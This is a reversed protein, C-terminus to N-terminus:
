LLLRYGGAVLARAQTILRRVRLKLHDSMTNWEREVAAQGFLAIATERLSHDLALSDLTALILPWRDARAMARDFSRPWSGTRLLIDWRQLAQLNRTLRPAELLYHLTVSGELMTGEVISLRIPGQPSAIAIEESNVQRLIAVPWPLDLLSLAGDTGAPAPRAVARIVDGDVEPKWFILAQESSLAPDEAFVCAGREERHHRASWYLLHPPACGNGTVDRRM